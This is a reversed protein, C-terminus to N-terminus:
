RVSGGNQGPYPKHLDDWVTLCVDRVSDELKSQSGVGGFGHSKSKTSSPDHAYSMMWVWQPDKLKKDNGFITLVFDADRPHVGDTALLDIGKCQPESTFANQFGIAWMTLDDQTIKGSYDPHPMITLTPHATASIVPAPTNQTTPVAHANNFKDVRSCGMVSMVMLLLIPCLAKLFNMTNEKSIVVAFGMAKSGATRSTNGIVSFSDQVVMM